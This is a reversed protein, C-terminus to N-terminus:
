KHRTKGPGCSCVHIYTQMHTQPETHRPTSTQCYTETCVLRHFSGASTGVRGGWVGGWAGPQDKRGTLHCGGAPVCLWGPGQTEMPRTVGPPHARLALGPSWPSISTQERSSLVDWGLVVPRWSGLMKKAMVEGRSWVRGGGAPLERVGEGQLRERKGPERARGVPRHGACNVAWGPPM